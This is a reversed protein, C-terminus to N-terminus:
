IWSFLQTMQINSILGGELLDKALGRIHGKTKAQKLIHDLADTALIFLLPSLPDGQRLGRHTTSYSGNEGNINICVKGGRVYGMIWQRLQQDFGKKGLIDEVFDWHISDYAKEFDIKFIVGNKGFELIM